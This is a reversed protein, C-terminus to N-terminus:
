VEDAGIHFWRAEPHKELVQTLMAKVLSLSEPVVPNLSNPYNSEERLHFYKEHKLVFQVPSFPIYQVPSKWFKM